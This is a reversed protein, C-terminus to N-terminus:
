ETLPLIEIQLKGILAGIALQGELDGRTFRIHYLDAPLQNVTTDLSIWQGDLCVENWAHYYFADNHLTVGAAIATPINLSRALAAFLAAHENCDGRGSKLTTLADPLGIVPRKEINKYLWETLLAVQRVPDTVEGVIEKAKAKIDSNDSQVYRSASLTSDEGVCSNESIFESDKLLPPFEEKTLTLTGEAFNQRGGNLAVEADKPFQLRFTATRSNEELLKGTYQVAVASLLEDGSDQIDMAKFKPEAQFVFGAPSRERVVKGQDDLWFNIQMGSYSETFNHLHYIRENLLKKEQGNYTIVSTRAALSFPDFFPIKLKDGKEHMKSLLYGRQNLPLVPPGQLTVADEMIAGGTDLTFHVTNGEVRGNATTSYFPSSFLFEFTRLQLGNGVTATLNMKIPQVSNLVKLRLSAEQLIRLSNEGDPRVDEMIYGIRKDKLYVGYYQQYKAQILAAQENSELTSVFFDRQVLFVLLAIWCCLVFFKLIRVIM